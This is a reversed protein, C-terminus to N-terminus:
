NRSGVRDFCQLREEFEEVRGTLDKGSLQFSLESDLDELEALVRDLEEERKEIQGPPVLSDAFRAPQVEVPRLLLAISNTIPEMDM